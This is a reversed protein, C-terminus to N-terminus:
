YSLLDLVEKDRFSIDTWIQGLEHKQKSRLSYKAAESCAEYVFLSFDEM